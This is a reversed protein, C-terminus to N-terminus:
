RTFCCRYANNLTLSLCTSQTCSGNGIARISQDENCTDNTWEWNNTTGTIGLTSAQACAYHLEGWGCLRRNASICTRAATFYDTAARENPEICFQSGVAVTGNPCPRLAAAPNNMLHFDTGDFVVSLLPLASAEAGTLTDGISQLIHYPGSGNVSIRLAGEITSADGQLVLHTGATPAGNLGEVETSWEPGATVVATRHANAQETGAAIAATPQNSAPLGEVQRAVDSIGTLVIPKDVRVQAWGHLPLLLLLLCLAKM